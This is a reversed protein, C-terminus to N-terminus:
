IETGKPTTTVKVKFEEQFKEWFTGDCHLDYGREQWSEIGEESYMDDEYTESHVYMIFEDDHVNEQLVPTWKHKDWSMQELVERVDCEHECVETENTDLFHVIFTYEEIEFPLQHSM